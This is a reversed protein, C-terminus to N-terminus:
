LEIAFKLQNLSYIKKRDLLISRMGANMSGLYDLEYSDGIYICNSLSAGFEQAAYFFIEKAPKSFGIDEPVIIKSFFSTIQKTKTQLDPRFLYWKFYYRTSSEKIRNM